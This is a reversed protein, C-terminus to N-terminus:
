IGWNVYYRLLENSGSFAGPATQGDLFENAYAFPYLNPPLLPGNQM